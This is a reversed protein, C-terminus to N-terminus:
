GRVHLVAVFIWVAARIDCHRLAIAPGARSRACNMASRRARKLAHEARGLAYAAGLFFGPLRLESASLLERDEGTRPAIKWSRRIAAAPASQQGCGALTVTGIM